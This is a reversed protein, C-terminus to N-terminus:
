VKKFALDGGLTVFDAVNAEFGKVGFAVTNAAIAQAFTYEIDLVGVKTDKAVATAANTYQVIVEDASIGALGDIGAAFSGQSLEFATKGSGAILGFGADALRVYVPGAELSASVDRGAAVIDSGVKKFALDGELRVFDAVNAEFGKVGFAVTNSAIAQAFTYEIDLVGLKTGAAVSTGANTYQVIVEDASVGGLGDIGAAFSGQSLEFATKGSGAILGFGADALRVYVPGAELSASVDRGAAVIDSGVKKFALDGGLKVFDAVNAEFGKVGFAVTNAAIAQAFTYEIDLVGVKTDKAVSTDANTYQVIVEDASVDALGSIGASFSGKSLEFGFQKGTGGSASSAFLGFRADNLSVHAADGAALRADIDTGVAVLQEAEGQTQTSFGFSGELGVFGFVDIKLDARVELLKGKSGDMTLEFVDEAGQGNRVLLETRRGQSADEPDVLSYDVVLTRAEVKPILTTSGAQQVSLAAAEARPADTVQLAAVDVGLLSGTFRLELARGSWFEVTASAAFGNGIATNLAAMMADVEAQVVERSM